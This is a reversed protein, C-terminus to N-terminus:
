LDFLNRQTSPVSRVKQWSCTRYQIANGKELERQREPSAISDDSDSSATAVSQLVPGIRPGVATIDDLKTWSWLSPRADEKCATSATADDLRSKERENDRAPDPTHASM